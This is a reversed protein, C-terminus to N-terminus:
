HHHDWHRANEAFNAREKELKSATKSHQVKKITSEPIRTAKGKLLHQRKLQRTFAGPHKIVIPSKGVYKQAESEYDKLAADSVSREIIATMVKNVNILAGGANCTVMLTDEDFECDHPAHVVAQLSKSAASAIDVRLAAYYKMGNDGKVPDLMASLARYRVDGEDVLEYKDIYKLLTIRISERGYPLFRVLLTRHDIVEEVIANVCSQKGATTLQQGGGIQFRLQCDRGCFWLRGKDAYDAYKLDEDTDGCGSCAPM